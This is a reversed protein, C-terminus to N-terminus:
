VNAGQVDPQQELRAVRQWCAAVGGAVAPSGTLCGAVNGYTFGCLVQSFHATIGL